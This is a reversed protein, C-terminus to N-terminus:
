TGTLRSAVSRAARICDPVSLGRLYNGCVELGPITKLEEEITQVRMDHGLTYQPIGADWRFGAVVRPKGAQINMVRQLDDHAIAALEEDSSALVAEDRAGGLFATVLVEDAGCRREFVVSNWVAGLLRVPALRTALFGFGDLPVGISDRAYAMAVQAVPACPIERVAGASNPAVDCLLRSAVAAPTAVVVKSARIVGPSAGGVSVAFGDGTRAIREVPNRLRVADGLSAALGEVLRRNGSDFTVMASRAASAKRKRVARLVSGHEREMAVLVPFAARVSIADPDGASVGAIFPGVAADVIERCARRTVFDAITEDADDTRPPVAPERLLRWKARLSILSTMLLSVPSTPLPVLGRETLIYRKKAASTSALVHEKLGLARVLNTFPESALFSQPGGEVIYGDRRLTRICGGADDGSELVVVRLGRARCEFACTLGSIGAGVIAVDFTDGESM